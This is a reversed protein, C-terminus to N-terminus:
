CAQGPRPLSTWLCCPGGSVPWRHAPWPVQCGRLRAWVMVELPGATGRSGFAVAVLATASPDKPRAQSAEFFSRHGTLPLWGPATWLVATDPDAAPELLSGKHFGGM